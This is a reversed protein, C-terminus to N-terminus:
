RGTSGFGGGGRPTADLNDVEVVAARDVRQLIMQAIRDGRRLEVADHLDHNVLLVRIEGRYGADITGPANVLGIGARAALGSRPHVLGVHGQPVAVALGTGVSAREGPELAVDATAYLDLGADGAHAYAPLPLGHDLRTVRLEVGEPAGATATLETDPHLDKSMLLEDVYQDDAVRLRDPVRADLRFGHALYYAERGTGGRVTLTLLALGRDRAAGELATLVRAGLGDGTRLPDRLLRMVIGLHARLPHEITVLFGLAVPVADDFAVVLDDRGAAVHALHDRATAAVEGRSAGPLFGVAGGAEVVRHWLAVLADVGDGDLTPNHVLEIM